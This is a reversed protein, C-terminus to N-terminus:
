STQGSSVMKEAIQATFKAYYSKAKELADTIEDNKEYGRHMIYDVLASAYIDHIDIAVGIAVDTPLVSYSLQVFGPSSGPQQPFVWFIYPDTADYSYNIVEDDARETHWDPFNLDLAELNIHTIARGPTSGGTGMNRIVRNLRIAVVPLSQRTGAILVESTTVIKASSDLRVIAHQGENLWALLDVAPWRVNSEDLLLEAAKDVLTQAVITGM